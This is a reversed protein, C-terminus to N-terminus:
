GDNKPTDSLYIPEQVPSCLGHVKRHWGSNKRLQIRSTCQNRNFADFWITCPAQRYVLGVVVAEQTAGLLRKWLFFINHKPAHRSATRHPPALSLASSLLIIFYTKSFPFSVHTICRYRICQNPWGCFKANETHFLISKCYWNIGHKPFNMLFKICAVHATVHVRPSLLPRPQM